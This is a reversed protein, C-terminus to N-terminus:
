LAAASVSFIEREAPSPGVFLSRRHKLATHTVDKRINIFLRWEFPNNSLIFFHGAKLTDENSRTITFSQTRYSMYIVKCM